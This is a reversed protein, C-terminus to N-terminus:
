HGTPSNLGKSIGVQLHSEMEMSKVIPKGREIEFFFPLINNPGNHVFEGFRGMKYWNM